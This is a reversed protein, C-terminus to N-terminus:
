LIKIIKLELNVLDESTNYVSKLFDLKSLLTLSDPNNKKVFAYITEYNNRRGCDICFRMLLAKGGYQFIVLIFEFM